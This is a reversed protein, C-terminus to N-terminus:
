SFCYNLSNSIYSLLSVWFEDWVAVQCTRRRQESTGGGSSSERAGRAPCLGESGLRGVAYGCVERWQAGGHWDAWQMAAVGREGQSTQRYRGLDLRGM